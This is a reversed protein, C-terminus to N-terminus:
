KYMCRSLQARWIHLMQALSILLMHVKVNDTIQQLCLQNIRIKFKLAKRKSLTFANYKISVYLRRLCKMCIM